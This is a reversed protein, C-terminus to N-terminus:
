IELRTTVKPVVRRLTDLQTIARPQEFISKTLDAVDVTTRGQLALATLREQIDHVRIPARQQRSSMVIRGNKTNLEDIAHTRMFAVIKRQLVRMAARRESVATQLKKVAADYDVWTSVFQKFEALEEATPPPVEPAEEHSAM